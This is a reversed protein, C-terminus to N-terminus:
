DTTAHQERAHELSIEYLKDIRKTMNAQDDENEELWARLADLERRVMLENARTDLEAVVIWGLLATMLASAGAIVLKNGTTRSILPEHSEPM